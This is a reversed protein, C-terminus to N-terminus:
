RKKTPYVARSNDSHWPDFWLAEFARNDRIGYLRKKSTLRFSQVVDIDDLKIERLQRQAAPTMGEVPVPHNNNGDRRGGAARYMEAWTQTEFNCCWDRLLEQM